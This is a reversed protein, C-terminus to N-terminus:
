NLPVMLKIYYLIYGSKGTLLFMSSGIIVEKSYLKNSFTLVKISATDKYSFFLWFLRPGWFFTIPCFFAPPLWPSPPTIRLPWPLVSIRGCVRPAMVHHLTSHELRAVSICLEDPVWFRTARSLLPLSADPRPPCWEPVLFPPQWNESSSEAVSAKMTKRSCVSQSSGAHMCETWEVTLSVRYTGPKKQM